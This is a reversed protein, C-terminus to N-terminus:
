TRCVNGINHTRTHIFIRVSAGEYQCDWTTYVTYLYVSCMSDELWCRDDVMTGDSAHIYQLMAM